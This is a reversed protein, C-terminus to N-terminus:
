RLQELWAALADLTEPEVHGYSPMRAGPKFRQPDEIWARLSDRGAPLTGAAIHLRSGVHTLDPALTDIPGPAPVGPEPERVAHCLGCRLEAFAQRGRQLQGADTPGGAAEAARAQGRLWAEYEALPMAVVHLAMRAHQEGCYEACQGRYVGPRDAELWMQGTRGPVMDIKGGLEPVWFSHVVDASTVGVIVARGVPIRLENATTVTRGSDPDSYRVEWWWMHGTLGIVTSEGAGPRILGDIRSESWALLAALVLTPFAVGGGVIWVAPRLRRPGSRWGLLALLMVGVFILTAGGFMWWAIESVARAAESAPALINM